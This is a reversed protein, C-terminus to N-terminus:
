SILWEEPIAIYKIPSITKTQLLYVSRGEVLQEFVPEYNVQISGIDTSINM